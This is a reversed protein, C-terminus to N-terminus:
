GRTGVDRRDERGANEEHQVITIKHVCRMPSVVLLLASKSKVVKKAKTRMKEVNFDGPTGFKDRTTLDRALRPILGIKEAM